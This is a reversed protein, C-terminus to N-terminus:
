PQEGLAAPRDTASWQSWSGPFLRPRGLGLHEMVLVDHCATVGSGCYAIVDEGAVPEFRARLEELPLLLGDSGVNERCPLSKAGPIHGPRPDIQEFEGTYRERPRADILTRSRDGAEDISALAEAPWPGPTFSGRRPLAEEGRALSLRYALLGGDLLAASHGTVRLMWVLRAAIVGGADDCAVVVSDDSIGAQAMGEAFVEPEPLPHRGAAASPPGALWRDLEVYVAGPIHGRAFAASGSSDDAYWRIDVLVVDERHEAFWEQSVFPSVFPRVSPSTM